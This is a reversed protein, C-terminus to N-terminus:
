GDSASEPRRLQRPRVGAIFLVGFYVAAGGAVAAALVAARPWLGGELWLQDLTAPWYLLILMALTALGIQRRLLTWGPRPRYVGQRRLGIYLLSANLTAALATAFAIGAHGVPTDRLWWTLSTSLVLNLLMAWLACRVPGRTDQRAFYGPALIKVLVFGFLGLAYTTLSLSAALADLADFEGHRFLTAMMPLALAVLAVTAPAIILATLRLAWDLTRAFAAPDSGQETSLRPLIVTGLAVGFIGLPFEVLRDSFYLWSISGAILFSALITDVLLNIQQVSTAFLTPGMLGLIRRVGPHRFGPRPWVLVGHGAVFPLQVLLQLVGAVLVAVALALIDPEFWPALYLAAGIMCLNLLVPAFAPPGFSGWTNLVAGAAATLSILLLYPFTWRLMDSAAELRLPDDAFGPAFAQVIWPAAAIGIVTLVVLVLALAGTTRAILERVAERSEGQRWQSLVPVFAQAFAGEAFLRRMFNPIKFAVFFADTAASPGFVTGIVVDRVLGLVRSVFTWSSFVLASSFLGSKKRTV